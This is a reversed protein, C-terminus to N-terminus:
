IERPVHKRDVVQEADYAPLEVPIPHGFQSMAPVLYPPNPGTRSSDHFNEISYPVGGQGSQLPSGHGNRDPHNRLVSPASSPPSDLELETKQYQPNRFGGQYYPANLSRQAQADKRKIRHRRVCAWIIGALVGIIIAAGVAIAAIAGGCLSTTHTAAVAPTTAVAAGATTLSSISSSSTMIPSSSSTATASSGGFPTPGGHTPSTLVTRDYGTVAACGFGKSGSAYNYTACYPAM